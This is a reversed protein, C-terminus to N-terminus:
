AAVLSQDLFGVGIDEVLHREVVPVGVNEM